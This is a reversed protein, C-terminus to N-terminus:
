HNLITVDLLNEITRENEKIWFKLLSPTIHVKTKKWEGVSDSDSMLVEGNDMVFGNLEITQEGDIKVM